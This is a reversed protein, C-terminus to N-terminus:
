HCRHNYCHEVPPRVLKCDWGADGPVIEAEASYYICDAVSPGVVVAM